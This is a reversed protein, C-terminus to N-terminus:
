PEEQEMPEERARKDGMVAVSLSALATVTEVEDAERHQAELFSCSLKSAFRQVAVWYRSQVQIVAELSRVANANPQLRLSDEPLPEPEHGLLAAVCAESADCVATLDHGGELALVVAGGALSMLQKTMYGFCKASVRYGGLAPPHGEAADFGASVLVLDPQFQRAIPMVVTLSSSLVLILSSIDAPGGLPCSVGPHTPM